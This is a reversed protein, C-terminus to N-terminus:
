FWEFRVKPRVIGRSITALLRADIEYIRTYRKFGLDDILDFLEKLEDQNIVRVGIGGRARKSQKWLVLYGRYENARFLENLGITATGNLINKAKEVELTRLV